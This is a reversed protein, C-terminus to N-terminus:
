EPGSEPREAPAPEPPRAPGIEILVTPYRRTPEPMPVVDRATRKMGVLAGLPEWQAMWWAPFFILRDLIYGVPHLAYAVIRVPHGARRPKYEAAQALSPVALALVLLLALPLRM